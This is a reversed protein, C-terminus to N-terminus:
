LCVDSFCQHIWKRFQYINVACNLFFLVQLNLPLSSMQCSPLWLRPEGTSSKLCTQCAFSICKEFNWMVFYRATYKLLCYSLAPNPSPATPRVLINLCLVHGATSTLHPLGLVVSERLLLSWLLISVITLPPPCRCIKLSSLPPDPRRLPSSPSLPLHSPVLSTSPVTGEAVKLWSAMAPPLQRAVPQHSSPPATHRRAPSFNPQDSGLHPLTQYCSPSL